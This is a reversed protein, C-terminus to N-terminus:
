YNRWNKGRYRTLQKQLNKSAIDIARKVNEDQITFIFNKNHVKLIVKLEYVRSNQNYEINMEFKPKVNKYTRFLKETLRSLKENAHSFITEQDLENTNKANIKLHM